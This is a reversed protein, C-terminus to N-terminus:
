LREGEVEIEVESANTVLNAQTVDIADSHMNKTDTFSSLWQGFNVNVTSPASHKAEGIGAVGLVYQSTKVDGQLVSNKINTAADIVASKLIEKAEGVVDAAHAQAAAKIRPDRLLRGYHGGDTAGPNTKVMRAIDAPKMGTAALEAILEHRISLQRKKPSIVYALEGDIKAHGTPLVEIKSDPLLKELFAQKCDM